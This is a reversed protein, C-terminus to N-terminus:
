MTNAISGLLTKKTESAVKFTGHRDRPVDLRMASTATLVTKRNHGNRTNGAELEDPQTLHHDMEGDLMREALRRELDDFLEGGHFLGQPDSDGILQDLM